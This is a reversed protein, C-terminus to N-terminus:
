KGGGRTARKSEEKRLQRAVESIFHKNLEPMSRRVFYRPRQGKTRLKRIIGETIRDIMEEESIPNGQADVRSFKLRNRYVWRRINERGKASVPHPRAGMELVGVYPAGNYLDVGKKTPIPKWAAAAKGTDRPTRHALLVRGYAASLRMAKQTVGPIRAAKALLEKAIDDPSIRITAAM